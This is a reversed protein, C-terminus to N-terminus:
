TGSHYSQCKVRVGCSQNVILSAVTNRISFNSALGGPQCRWHFGPQLARGVETQDARRCGTFISCGFDISASNKANVDFERAHEM